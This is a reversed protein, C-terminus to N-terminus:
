FCFDWLYLERKFSKLLLETRAYGEFGPRACQFSHQKLSLGRQAEKVDQVGNLVSGPSQSFSQPSQKTM